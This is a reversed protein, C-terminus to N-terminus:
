FLVLVVKSMSDLQHLSVYLAKQKIRISVLRVCLVVTKELKLNSEAQFVDLAAQQVLHIKFSDLMVSKALTKARQGLMKLGNAKQVLQAHTSTMPPLQLATNEEFVCSVSLIMVTEKKQETDAKPVRNVLLLV